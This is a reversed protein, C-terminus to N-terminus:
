TTNLSNQGTTLSRARQAQITRSDEPSRLFPIMNSFDISREVKEDYKYQNDRDQVLYFPTAKTPSGM